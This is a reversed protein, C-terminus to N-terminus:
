LSEVCRVRAKEWCMPNGGLAKRFLDAMSHLNSSVNAVVLKHSVGIEPQPMLEVAAGFKIGNVIKVMISLDIPTLLPDQLPLVM